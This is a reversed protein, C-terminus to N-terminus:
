GHCHVKVNVIDFSIQFGAVSMSIGYGFAPSSRLQREQRTPKRQNFGILSCLIM